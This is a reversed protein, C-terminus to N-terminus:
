LAVINVAISNLSKFGVFDLSISWIKLINNMHDMFLIQFIKAIKNEKKHMNGGGKM